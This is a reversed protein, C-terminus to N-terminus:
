VAGAARIVTIDATEPLPKGLELACRVKVIRFSAYAEAALVSDQQWTEHWAVVSSDAALIVIKV